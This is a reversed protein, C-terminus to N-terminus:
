LLFFSFMNPQKGIELELKLAGLLPVPPRDAHKFHFHLLVSGVLPFGILFIDGALTSAQLLYMTCYQTTPTLICLVINHLLLLYMTCYQTYYPNTCLVINHLLLLYMTYFQTTATLVYYLITYYSYTCLIINHLLLLYMTYYQVYYLITYYSYTCLVINHLLLLYM